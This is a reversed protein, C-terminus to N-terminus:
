SADGTEERSRRAPLPDLMARRRARRVAGRVRAADTVRSGGGGSRFCTALNGDDGVIVTVGRDGIYCIRLLDETPYVRLAARAQDIAAEAAALWAEHNRAAVAEAEPHGGILRFGDEHHFCGVSRLITWDRQWSELDGFMDWWRESPDFVHKCVKRWRESVSAYPRLKM